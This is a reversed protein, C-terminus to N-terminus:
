PLTRQNSAKSINPVNKFIGAILAGFEEPISYGFPIRFMLPRERRM